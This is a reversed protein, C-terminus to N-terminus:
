GGHGWQRHWERAWAREEPTREPAWDWQAYLTALHASFNGNAEAETFAEDHAQWDDYPRPSLVPRNTARM